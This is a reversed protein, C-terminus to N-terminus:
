RGGARRGQRKRDKKGSGKEQGGGGTKATKDHKDKQRAAKRAAKAHAKKRAQKYAKKGLVKRAHAEIEEPTRFHEDYGYDGGTFDCTDMKYRRCILPRDEYIACRGDEGLAKCRNAISIYWDGEDVHVTIDEHMLFWRIDDFEEFSDPEDIEFCFYQCCSGGCEKCMSHVEDKM